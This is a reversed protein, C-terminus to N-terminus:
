IGLSLQSTSYKLVDEWYDYALSHRSFLALHYLPLNRVDSRISKMQHFGVPLYRLTEMQKAYTEALFQPFSVKQKLSQAEWNQRWDPLGLFDDIKHNNEDFYHQLNRNGDM